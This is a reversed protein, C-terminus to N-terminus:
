SASPSSSYAGSEKGGGSAREASVTHVTTYSETDSGEMPPEGNLVRLFSTSRTKNVHLKAFEPKHWTKMIDGRM